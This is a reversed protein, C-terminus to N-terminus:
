FRGRRARWPLTGRPPPQGGEDVPLGLTWNRQHPWTGYPLSLVLKRTRSLFLTLNPLTGQIVQCVSPLVSSWGPSWSGWFLCVGSARKERPCFSHYSSPSVFPSATPAKCAITTYRLGPGMAYPVPRKQLSITHTEVELARDDVQTAQWVAVTTYRVKTYQAWRSSPRLISPSIIPMSLPLLPYPYPYWRRPQSSTIHLTLTILQHLSRQRVISPMWGRSELNSWRLSSSSRSGEGGADLSVRRKCYHPSALRNFSSRSTIADSSLPCLSSRKVVLRVVRCSFLLLYGFTNGERSETGREAATMKQGQRSTIFSATVDTMDFRLVQCVAPHWGVFCSFCLWCYAIFATRRSIFSFKVFRAAFSSPHSLQISCHFAGSSIHARFPFPLTLISASIALPFFFSLIDLSSFQCHITQRDWNCEMSWLLMSTGKDDSVWQKFGQKAKQGQEVRAAAQPFPASRRPGGGGGGPFQARWSFGRWRTNWGVPSGHLRVGWVFLKGAPRGDRQNAPITAPLRSTAASYVRTASINFSGKPAKWTEVGDTNRFM